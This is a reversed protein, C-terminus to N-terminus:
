KSIYAKVIQECVVINHEVCLRNMHSLLRIWLKDSRDAEAQAIHAEGKALYKAYFGPPVSTGNAPPHLIGHM